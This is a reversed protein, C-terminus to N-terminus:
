CPPLRRRAWNGAANRIVSLLSSSKQPELQACKWILCPSPASRHFALALALSVRRTLHLPKARLPIRVAADVLAVHPLRIMLPARRYSDYLPSHVCEAWTNCKCKYHLGNIFYAALFRTSPSPTEWVGCIPRESRSSLEKTAGRPPCGPRQPPTRCGPTPSVSGAGVPCRVSNRCM